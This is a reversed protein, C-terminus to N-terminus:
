VFIGNNLISMKNGSVVNVQALLQKSCDFDYIFVENGPGSVLSCNAAGSGYNHLQLMDIGSRFNTITAVNNVDDGYADGSRSGLVFLDPSGSGSGALTDSAYDLLNNWGQLTDGGSTGAILMDGSSGGHLFSGSTEQSADLTVSVPYASADLTSGGGGRVTSVGAGSSLSGLSASVGSTLSLIGFGSVHQMEADTVGGGFSSTVWLVSNQGQQSSATLFSGGLATGSAVEVLNSGSGANVTDGTGMAIITDNGSGGILSDNNMPANFTLASSYASANVTTGAAIGSVSSIGATQANVGLTVNSTGTLSLVQVGSVNTFISDAVTGATGILLTDNGGGGRITDSGVQSATTVAFLVGAGTAVINLASSLGAGESIVASAGTDVVTTIGAAQAATNLTVNSAGTLSLVQVGSVNAFISDAVTGATAIALTDNGGGGRITDTAVQSATTLAFLDGAGTAVINLASSLGAGESIVASAGADIVTTIGAAQAATNL